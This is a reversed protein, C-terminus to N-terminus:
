GPLALGIAPGRSEIAAGAALCLDERFRGALIQVGVPREGSVDMTLTLGPLGTLALGIMPAQADWVRTYSAADRVDLNADFPLEASVPLLVVPHSELFLQWQRIVTARTKLADSFSALTVARGIAAQGALAAIAGPDGEVEAAEVMAEYGDGMWLTIQAEYVSRIPPLGDVEVVNWEADRLRAAAEHLAAVIEPATRMGDPHTCVAASKAADPGVLPAPVWWPDRADGGAMVALGLGIDAVTRALPGSVAMIQGGISREPATANYAAVRGVTPRLGHIGCAYAPYRISGAIDTGHAIHGIGAAVSAAAGGSSGGPTISPDRPNKTDGYLLNTTFWRYSFAPCNTRGLIVAGAKRLNDIVPSNSTPLVDKQIGVGNTTAYGAYDINVKVTVPVGALPGLADGRAIAEDIAAAQALVDDPRHEVVANIAPNVADLRALGALAAEKASVKRDRILAALDSASLRWLDNM